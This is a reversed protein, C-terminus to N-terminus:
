DIKLVGINIRILNTQFIIEILNIIGFISLLIVIGVLASTVRRRAAETSAKDGGSTIWQIAGLLLVFFFIIVGIVFGAGVLIPIFKTIFEEGSMGALNPGLIPNYIDQTILKQFTSIM